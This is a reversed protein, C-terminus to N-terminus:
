PLGYHRALTDDVFTYPADFIEGFDANRNWVVDRILALTEERMSSKLQDDFMPFADQNKALEPLDRLRLVEDYFASLADPASRTELLRRAHEVIEEESSLGGNEAADLLAEDPTAGSLFFAMRSALELETLRREGPREPDLRGREVRYLFSPSQLMAMIVFGIGRDFDQYATAADRGLAVFAATEAATLSRRFALRGFRAVFASMCAADDTSSPSCRGYRSSAAPATNEAIARASSEYARVSADSVILEGAGIADLGNIATDLPPSASAAAADGLLARVTAVYEAHLLRRVVPRGPSFPPPERSDSVVPPMETPPDNALVGSLEGASCSALLSLVFWPPLGRKM